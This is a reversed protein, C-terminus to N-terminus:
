RAAGATRNGTRGAGSMAIIAALYILYAAGAYKLITQLVPFAFFIAGFGLGVAGCGHFCLRVRHGRYASPYPPLWLDAGVVAAHHQEAGAHVVMVAAFVVFALLLSHSMM